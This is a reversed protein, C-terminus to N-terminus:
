RMVEDADIVAARWSPIIVAAIYLPVTAIFVLGITYPDIVVPLQSAPKLISYGSFLNILLPADLLFVYGAALMIGALFATIAVLTNETLKLRIVDEIRWGVAKLIGIERREDAGLGSAKEYVLIFFALFATVFLALFIGSKYDFINQYSSRIDEKAIVRTAPFMEKIKQAVTPIEVPNPVRVVIDTAVGDDMELIKRALTVPLLIMDNTELASESKFTGALHVKTIEGNSQIFNFYDSYYNAQLTKKVGEGVIMFDSGMHTEIDFDNVAKQISQTYAPLFFDVGMVTFNVGANQFYYYGWVRENASAVGPIDSISYVMDGYLPVQRGANLQQVTIDPLADLTIELEKKLSGAIMLITTVLTIVLTFVLIIALNKGKRRLLSDLAFRLLKSNM